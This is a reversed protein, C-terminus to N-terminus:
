IYFINNYLVFRSVTNDSLTLIEQSSDRGDNSDSIQTSEPTSPRDINEGATENSFHIPVANKILYRHTKNVFIREAFHNECISM